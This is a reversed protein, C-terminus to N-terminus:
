RKILRPRKQGRHGRRGKQGKKKDKRKTRQGVMRTLEEKEQGEADLCRVRSFTRGKKEEKSIQLHHDAQTAVQPFHTICLVQHRESITKLKNGVITATEGGINADVEDFILM